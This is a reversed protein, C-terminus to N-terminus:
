PSPAADASGAQAAADGGADAAEAERLRREQEGFYRVRYAANITIIVMALGILLAIHTRSLQM